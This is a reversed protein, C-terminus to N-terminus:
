TRITAVRSLNDKGPHIITILRGPSLKTPPIQNGKLPPLTLENFFPM